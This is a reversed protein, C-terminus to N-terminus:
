PAVEVDAKPSHRAVLAQEVEPPLPRGDRQWPWVMLRMDSTLTQFVGSFESLPRGEKQIRLDEWDESEPGLLAFRWAGEQGWVYLHHDTSPPAIDKWILTRIVQGPASQEAIPETGVTRYLLTTGSCEFEITWEVRGARLRELPISFEGESKPLEALGAMVTDDGGPRHGVVRVSAPPRKGNELQLTLTATGSAESFELGTLTTCEAAARAAVEASAQWQAESSRQDAIRWGLAAVVVLGPPTAHAIRTRGQERRMVWAIITSLVAHYLFYSWIVVAVSVPLNLSAATAVLALGAVSLVHRAFWANMLGFYGLPFTLVM